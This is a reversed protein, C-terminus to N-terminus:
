KQHRNRRSPNLNLPLTLPALVDHTEQDSKDCSDTEILSYLIARANAGNATNAFMGNKRSNVCPKIAREARNNDINLDGHDIYRILKPWQRLSYGIGNKFTTLPGIQKVPKVKSSSKRRKSLNGGRM